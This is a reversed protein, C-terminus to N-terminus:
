WTFIQTVQSINLNDGGRKFSLLITNGDKELKLINVSFSHGSCKFASRTRRALKERYHETTLISNQQFVSDRPSVWCLATHTVCLSLNFQRDRLHRLLDFWLPDPPSINGQESHCFNIILSLSQCICEM